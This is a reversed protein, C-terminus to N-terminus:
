APLASDKGERDNEQIQIIDQLRENLMPKEILHRTEPYKDFEDCLRNWKWRANSLIHRVGERTKEDIEDAPRSLLTADKYRFTIQGFIEKQFADIIQDKVLNKDGHGKVVADYGFEKIYQKISRIPVIEQAM